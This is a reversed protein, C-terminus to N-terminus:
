KADVIEANKDQFKIKLINSTCIIKSPTFLHLGKRLYFIVPASKTADTRLLCDWIDQNKKKGWFQARKRKLKISVGTNHLPKRKIVDIM